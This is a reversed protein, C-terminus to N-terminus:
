DTIAMFWLLACTVLDFRHFWHLDICTWAVRLLCILLWCPTLEGQQWCTLLFANLIPSFLFWLVTGTRAKSPPYLSRSIACWWTCSFTHCSTLALYTLAAFKTHNGQCCCDPSSVLATDCGQCSLYCSIAEWTWKWNAKGVSLASFIQRSVHM